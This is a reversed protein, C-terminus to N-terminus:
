KLEIERRDITTKGKVLEIEYDGPSLPGVFMTMAPGDVWYSNVVEDESNYLIVHYDDMVNLNVFTLSISQHELNPMVKDIAVRQPNNANERRNNRDQSFAFSPAMFLLMTIITAFAIRNRMVILKM